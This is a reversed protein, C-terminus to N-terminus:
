YLEQHWGCHLESLAPIVGGGDWPQCMEVRRIALNSKGELLLCGLKLKFTVPQWEHM